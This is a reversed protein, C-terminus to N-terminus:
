AVFGAALRIPLRVLGGTEGLNGAWFINDTPAGPRDDAIVDDPIRKLLSANWRRRAPQALIKPASVIAFDQPSSAIWDFFPKWVAEARQRDLGQFEMAIKVYGGGILIQEGWNPNFLAQAYFKSL